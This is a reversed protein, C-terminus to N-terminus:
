RLVAHRHRRKRTIATQSAIEQRIAALAIAGLAALGHQILVAAGAVAFEAILLAHLAHREM